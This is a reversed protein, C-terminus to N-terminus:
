GDSLQKNEAVFQKAKKRIMHYHEKHKSLSVKVFSQMICIHGCKILSNVAFIYIDFNLFKKLSRWQLNFCFQRNKLRIIEFLNTEDRILSNFIKNKDDVFRKNWVIYTSGITRRYYVLVENILKFKIHPFHKAIGIQMPWDEIVDYQELERLVEPSTLTGPGYFLNPANNYSIHKFRHMLSDDRYVVQTATAFVDMFRDHSLIDGRLYLVRGSIISLDSENRTLIFINEYSYVDDGATIKCRRAVVHKLLSKISACTGLNEQSYLSKVCRFVNTNLSLWQDILTTTQDRSCDDNIILDVDINSGHTLVLYKISELHELIYGEHNYTMVLFAFSDRVKSQM